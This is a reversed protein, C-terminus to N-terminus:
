TLHTELTARSIASCRGPPNYDDDDDDELQTTPYPERPASLRTSSRLRKSPPNDPSDLSTSEMKRKPSSVSNEPPQRAFALIDGRTRVYADVVDDLAGNWRLKSEQDPARCLPCRGDNALSRRICLSCFTHLCTTLMPTKYFDRCVQCRLTSEVATLGSLPTALWDTSDAISSFDQDAMSALSPTPFFRSHNLLPSPAHPKFRQAATQDNFPKVLQPRGARRPAYLFFWQVIWSLVKRM